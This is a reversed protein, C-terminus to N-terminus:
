PRVTPTPHPGSRRQGLAAIAATLRDGAIPKTLHVQFGAKIADARDQARSFATLAIAPLIQANYGSERVNRILEYGNKEAMGIDSVLVSPTSTRLLALAEDASAAEAVQAGADVLVRSVFARADVDDEVVLVTFGDLPASAETPQVQLAQETLPIRVTFRAGQGEGLSSAEITGGHVDVLHKVITLGIGLGAFSKNFGSTQQNFRDFLHPLFAAHIGRGTDAVSIEYQGDITRASLTVSGGDPTFKVANSALSWVIQQLRASDGLVRAEHAAVNWALSIKRAKALPAVLAHAAQLAAAPHIAVMELDMKGFRMGAYDLLDAVLHTQLRSNREIVDLGKLIEPTVGPTRKLVNVWGLIASLPNRLEHSLTALFEDKIRNLREAEARAAREGAILNERDAEARRRATVDTAIAIRTGAASSAVIRWELAIDTGDGRLVPLTGQWHGETRLAQDIHGCIERQEAGLLRSVHQGVIETKPLAILSCFAPNADTCVLEVNMLAIGSSVFEFVTCCGGGSGRSDPLLYLQHASVGRTPCSGCDTYSDAQLAQHANTPGAM